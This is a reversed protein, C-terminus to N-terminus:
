KAVVTVVWAIGCTDCTLAKGGIICADYDRTTSRAASHKLDM